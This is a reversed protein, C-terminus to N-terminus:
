MVRLVFCTLKSFIKETNDLSLGIGSQVSVESVLVESRCQYCTRISIGDKALNLRQM